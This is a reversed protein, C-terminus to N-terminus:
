ESQMDIRRGALSIERDELGRCESDPSINFVCLL